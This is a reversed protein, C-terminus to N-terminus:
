PRGGCGAGRCHLLLVVRGQKRSTVGVVFRDDNPKLQPSLLKQGRDGERRLVGWTVNQEPSSRGQGQAPCLVLPGLCPRAAQPPVRLPSM